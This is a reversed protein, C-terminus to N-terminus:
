REAVLIAWRQTFHLADDHVLPRMGTPPGGDLEAELAARVTDGAEAPTQAQALWRDFPVRQDHATEHPGRL